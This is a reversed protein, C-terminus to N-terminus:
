FECNIEWKGNDKKRWIGNGRFSDAIRWFEEITIGIYKCFKLITKKSCKGDYKKVLEIGEERTLKGRRIEEAVQDTVKGFGLKLYKMMQNVDVFENDLAEHGTLDGTEEPADHRIEMGHEMAFQANELKGFGKIYYGLFYIKLNALALEDDTSYGYWYIENSDISSELVSGIGDKITNAHKMRQACGDVSKVALEGVTIAPNEGFFVLPIQYAIATKPASSYLPLEAAKLLNGFRYFSNKLLRKWVQPSLNITILDFGLNVINQLNRIGLRTVQEPPYTCCVLLPKLGLEDKAFMAQRVSDKGGSVGIVCDYGSTNHKKGWEAIEEIGHRRASWDIEHSQEAFICAPCVGDENFVISPRTDPQVCKKCIKM